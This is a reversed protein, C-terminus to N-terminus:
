GVPAVVPASALSAAIARAWANVAPWDRFDGYSAKVMAVVAREGIGLEERSLRGAFVAHDRPHLQDVLDSVDVPDGAPLPPDGLPGSSLLWLPRARLAAAYRGAFAKAEQMWHGAYVGSGLIVADYSGVDHVDSPRHEEVSFGLADLKKAIATGIEATGGHKSAVTVLIKM